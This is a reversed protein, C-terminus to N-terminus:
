HVTTCTLLCIVFLLVCRNTAHLLFCNTRRLICQLITHIEDALVQDQLSPLKITYSLYILAYSFLWDVSVVHSSVLFHDLYLDACKLASDMKRLIFEKATQYSLVAHFFAFQEQDLPVKLLDYNDVFRVKDSPFMPEQIKHRNDNEFDRLANYLPALYFQLLPSRVPSDSSTSNGFLNEHQRALAEIEETLVRIHKGSSFSRSVYYM